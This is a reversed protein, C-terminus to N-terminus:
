NSCTDHYNTSMCEAIQELIAMNKDMCMIDLSHLARTMAVYLLKLDFEELLYDEELSCIIVADFELGKALYSPVIITGGEYSIDDSNLQKTVIRENKDLLKKVRSCEEHTKCIVAITNYPIGKLEEVRKELAEIIKDQLGYRYIGPKDGHRVVPKAPVLGPIKSMLLIQNAVDMIEITTRYSQELTLFKCKGSTFVKELVEKWDKIGRYSHIGQALDGLITFLETNFIEKLAYIQFLSFDQAEDIVIYKIDIKKDFGFIRHKLYILATLDELEIMKKSLLESNHKCLYTIFENDLIDTNFQQLSEPNTIFEKFYYMVSQKPFLSLYKTVASKATKKLSEVKQDRANILAVTKERREESPEISDRLSQIQKEYFNEVGKILSASTRKLKNSLAKKVEPIRKYLPLYSFDIMFMKKIEDSTFITYKELKFDQEPIFAQELSAIYSNIMDRFKLSGKFESVRRLLLLDRDETGKSHTIFKILKEDPSSLKYTIGSLDYVLDIFTTQKVQEVGLEPLVESIYNLFLRNPAIILFNDPDFTEEYTYILYAIRHLAITTKGSGAVGQVILPRGIDARIIENQEAQITSVIDKLKNDKNEGLAAQLFTDTTTIDVDMINELCGKNITYQRKLHLEGGETGTPTPYTVHGLRGDYYVSAIPSRWDVILLSDDEVKSLSMKGIYLKNLETSEDQQFDIRCFYPKVRSRILGDYNKELMNLFKANTMIRVYSLSSDLPDLDVYAERMEQKFRKRNKETALIANEVYEITEDLRQVEEQYDPHEKLSMLNLEKENKQIKYNLCIYKSNIQNNIVM